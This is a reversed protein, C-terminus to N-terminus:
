VWRDPTLYVSAFAVATRRRPANSFMVVVCFRQFYQEFLAHHRIGTGASVVNRGEAISVQRTFVGM